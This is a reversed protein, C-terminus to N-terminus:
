FLFKASLSYHDNDRWLGILSEDPGDYSAGQLAFQVHDSYDYTLELENLKAQNKLQQASFAVLTWKEKFNYRLGLMGTQEFFGLSSLARSEPPESSTVSSFQLITTLLGTGVNWNKELAGVQEFQRQPIQSDNSVAQTSLGEWKFIVSDFNWLLSGGGSRIKYDRLAIAVDQNVEVVIKPSLQTIRGSVTPYMLPLSALGEFYNLSTEFPGHQFSWQVGFNNEDAKDIAERSTFNYALEEPKEVVVSDDGPSVPVQRPLWLSKENPLLSQQHKPLYLVQFQQDSGTIQWNVMLEGRDFSHTPNFYAKANVRNLPNYGDTIGWHVIQYGVKLNHPGFSTQLNCEPCDVYGLSFNKNNQQQQEGLFFAKTQIKWPQFDYVYNATLEGFWESAKQQPYQINKLSASFDMEGGSALVRVAAGFIIAWIFYKM